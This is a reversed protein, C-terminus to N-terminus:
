LPLEQAVPSDLLRARAMAAAPSGPPLTLYATLLDAAALWHHETPTLLARPDPGLLAALPGDPPTWLTGEADALARALAPWRWRAPAPLDGTWYEALDHTLAARLLAPSPGPPPMLALLLLAVEASHHGVTDPAAVDARTHWRRVGLAARLLTLTTADAM